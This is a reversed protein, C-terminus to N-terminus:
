TMDTFLYTWAVVIHLPLLKFSCCSRIGFWFSNALQFAFRYYGYYFMFWCIHIADCKSHVQNVFCHKNTVTGTKLGTEVKTQKGINRYQKGINEYPCYKKGAYSYIPRYKEWVSLAIMQLWSCLPAGLGMLNMWASSFCLECLSWCLTGRYTLLNTSWFQQLAM